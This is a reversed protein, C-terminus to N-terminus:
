KACKESKPVYSPIQESCSCKVRQPTVNKNRKPSYICIVLDYPLHLKVKIRRLDATGLAQTNKKGYLTLQAVHRKSFKVLDTEEVNSRM